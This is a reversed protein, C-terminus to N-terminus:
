EVSVFNVKVFSSIFIGLIMIALMVKVDSIFLILFLCILARILCFILECIIVFSNPGVKSGAFYMNETSIVEYMKTGLGELFAIALLLYKDIISIKFILIICFIINLLLFYKANDIKRTLFYIFIISAIGIFINFIGIYELNNDVYLYIYLPQLSTFIVKFQELFFFKKSQKPIKKFTEKLSIKEDKDRGKLFFLPIMGFMSIITVVIVTILLGFNNILYAGLYPSIIMAIYSYILLNGITKRKEKKPLLTLAYYHRLPHYTYSSISFLASYIVLNILNAEMTYLYYFTIGFLISSIMLTYKHNFKNGIYVFFYSSIAGILYILMESLLIEKISYEMKYLLVISFLSVINRAFFSLFIFFNYKKFNEMSIVM